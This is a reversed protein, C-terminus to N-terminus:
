SAIQLDNNRKLKIKRYLLIASIVDTIFMCHFIGFVFAEKKSIINNKSSKIISSIGYVSSTLMLFCDTLFLVLVILPSVFVLAPVVMAALFVVGIVFVCLYFPIHVLKIIMNYFALKVTATEDKYTIANLINVVYVLLTLIVYAFLLLMYINDNLSDPLVVFLAFLYPWVMLIFPLCKRM